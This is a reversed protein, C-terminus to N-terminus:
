PLPRRPVKANADVPEAMNQGEIVFLPWILDATDLRTEAVLRRSFATM